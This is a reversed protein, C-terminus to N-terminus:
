RDLIPAELAAVEAMIVEVNEDCVGNERLARELYDAVTDFDEKEIDLHTHAERMEAGTYSVPGGAVSSIFQVQHTHLEAMDFEEFFGVLQEDELVRDYFDSVVADVAERGGIEEYISQDDPNTMM